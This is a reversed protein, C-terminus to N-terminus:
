DYCKNANNSLKDSFQSYFIKVLVAIQIMTLYIYTSKGIILDELYYNSFLGGFDILNVIISIVFSNFIHVLRDIGISLFSLGYELFSFVTVLPVFPLVFMNVLVSILSFSKFYYMTIPITGLTASLTAAFDGRLISPLFEFRKQIRDVLVWIGAMASISLLFSLSKYMLPNMLHMIGVVYILLTMKNLKRGAFMLMLYILNMLVARTAPQNGVGVVIWFVIVFIISIKLGLAKGFGKTATLIFNIVLLVNFGSVAVIHSTGTIRVARDFDESYNMDLGLTMGIILSAHPEDYRSQYYDMFSRRVGGLVSLFEEYFTREFQGMRHMDPQYMVHHINLTRLYQKFKFGDSDKPEVLKGSIKFNEGLRIDDHMDKYIRVRGYDNSRIDVRKKIGNNSVEQVVGQFEVQKGFNDEQAAMNENFFFLAYFYGIGFGIVIAPLNMRLLISFMVLFVALYISIGIDFFTIIGLIYSVVLLAIPNQRANYVLWKFM